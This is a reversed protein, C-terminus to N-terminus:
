GDDQNKNESSNRKAANSPERASDPMERTLEEVIPMEYKHSIPVPPTPREESEEQSM